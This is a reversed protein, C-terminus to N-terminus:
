SISLEPRYAKMKEQWTNFCKELLDGYDIDEDYAADRFRKFLDKTTWIRMQVERKLPLGCRGLPWM